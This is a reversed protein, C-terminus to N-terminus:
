ADALSSLVMNRHGPDHVDLFGRGPMSLLLNLVGSRSKPEFDLAALIEETRKAIVAGKAEDSSARDLEHQMELKLAGLARHRTDQNDSGLQRVLDATSYTQVAGAANRPASDLRTGNADAMAGVLAILALGVVVRKVGGRPECHWRRNGSLRQATGSCDVRAYGTPPIREEANSIEQPTRM